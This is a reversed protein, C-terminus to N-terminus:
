PIQKIIMSLLTRNIRVQYKIWFEKTLEDGWAMTWMECGGSSGDCRTAEASAPPAPIVCVCWSRSGSESLPLLVRDLLWWQGLFCRDPYLLPLSRECKLTQPPCDWITTFLAAVYKCADKLDSPSIYGVPSAKQRKDSFNIFLGCLGQSNVALRLKPTHALLWHTPPLVVWDTQEGAWNPKMAISRRKVSM